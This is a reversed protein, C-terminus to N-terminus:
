NVFAGLRDWFAAALTGAGAVCGLIFWLLGVIFVSGAPRAGQLTIAPLSEAPKESQAGRTDDGPQRAGQVRLDRGEGALFREREVLREGIHRAVAEAMAAVDSGEALVVRGLRTDRVFRYTRRDHGLHVHTVADIWFRPQSGSSIALDFFDIDRPVDDTVPRLEEALMELRVRNAERIDVVVDEREAAAIKVKRIIDALRGHANAPTSNEAMNADRDVM